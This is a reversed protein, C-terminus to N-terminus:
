QTYAASPRLMDKCHRLDDNAADAFSLSVYSDSTLLISSLQKSWDRKIIWSMLRSTCICRSESSIKTVLRVTPSLCAPPSIIITYTINKHPVNPGIIGYYFGQRIYAVHVDICVLNVWDHCCYKRHLIINVLLIICWTTIKM